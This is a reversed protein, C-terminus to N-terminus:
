ICAPAPSSGDAVPPSQVQEVARVLGVRECVCVGADDCCTQSELPAQEAEGSRALLPM